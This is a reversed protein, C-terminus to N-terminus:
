EGVVVDDCAHNKDRELMRMGRDVISSLWVPSCAPNSPNNSLGPDFGHTEINAEDICYLGFATCIEYWLPDNPYHSCRVANFNLRKMLAADQRMSALSVTKGRKPDHEHRNVGKLMVARGNHLLNRSTNSLKAHRFGVQSAEYELTVGSIADVLELILIYVVPSEASWLDPGDGSDGGEKSHLEMADASLTVRGACGAEEPTACGSTDGATWLPVPTGEMELLIPGVNVSATAPPVVAECNEGSAKGLESVDWSHLKAKVKMNQIATVDSFGRIDVEVEIRASKLVPAPGDMINNKDDNSGTTTEFELPTKIYFDAIHTTPKFQIYINRHIGSLWWMDQDELYTGDSWKMVQAAITNQGAHLAATIEFEAPLRSDQSYGIFQGNVWCYFASDVGEFVLFARQNSLSSEDIPFELRYCGTPNDFPVFPPNM